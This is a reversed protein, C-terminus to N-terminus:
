ADAARVARVFRSLLTADLAGQRRLGSCVDVGFPRVARVAQAANGPSLGGALWVPVPSAAVIAASAEWDHVRGTGGLEPVEASPRGSDLLLADAHRALAPARDVAQPGDVHVVQILEVGPLLARLEARVGEALEHVLQVRRVGTARVEAAVQAATRASTLLVFPADPLSAVIQAARDIELTGPGSPMPGVLGLLSAGAELALEAEAASAMCCVKIRTM